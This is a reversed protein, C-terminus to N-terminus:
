RPEAVLRFDGNLDIFEIVINSGIGQIFPYRWIELPLTSTRGGESPVTRSLTGQSKSIERPEGHMIWMRGRDTKWGPVAATFRQNAQTIRAYYENRFENDVTGPTPDRRLWFQEIFTQRERDTRLDRFAAVEEPLIVYPVEASPWDALLNDAQSWAIAGFSLLCLLFAPAVFTRKSDTM